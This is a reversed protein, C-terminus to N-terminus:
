GGKPTPTSCPTRCSVPSTSPSAWRSCSADFAATSAQAIRDEPGIDVYDTGFVLRSIARHPVGVGKPKDFHIPDVAPKWQNDKTLMLVRPVPRRDQDEVEGRYTCRGAGTLLGASIRGVARTLLYRPIAGDFTVAQM